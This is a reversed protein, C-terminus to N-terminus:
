GAPAADWTLSTRGPARRDTHRFQTGVASRDLRRGVLYEVVTKATRRMLPVALASILSASSAGRPERGQARARRLGQRDFASGSRVAPRRLSARMVVADTVVYEALDRLCACCAAGGVYM